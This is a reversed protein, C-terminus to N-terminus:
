ITDGQVSLQTADSADSAAGANVIRKIWVAVYDNQAYPDTPLAIGGAFSSPASFTVGAPASNENAITTATGNKGAPDLGIELSTDASSTQSSIWLYPTILGNADADINQFYICRYNTEGSAALAGSVRVFLGNLSSSVATTSIAGGLSATPDTNSGGGSLYWKLNSGAIPM